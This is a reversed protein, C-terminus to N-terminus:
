LLFRVVGDLLIDLFATQAIYAVAERMMPVDPVITGERLYTTWGGMLEVADHSFGM